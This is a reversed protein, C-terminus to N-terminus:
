LTREPDVGVVAGPAASPQDTRGAGPVLRVPGCIRAPLPEAPPLQVGMVEPIDLVEAALVYHDHTSTGGGHLEEELKGVDGCGRPHGTSRWLEQWAREVAGPAPLDLVPDVLPDPTPQRRRTHDRGRPKRQGLLVLAADFGPDQHGSRHEFLDGLVADAEDVARLDPGVGDRQAVPKRTESSWRAGSRRRSGPPPM